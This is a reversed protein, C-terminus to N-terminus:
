YISSVEVQFCYLSIPVALLHLLVVHKWEGTSPLFHIAPFVTLLGRLGVGSERHNGCKNEKEGPVYQYSVISLIYSNSFEEM